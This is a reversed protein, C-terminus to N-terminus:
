FATIFVYFFCPFIIHEVGTYFTSIHSCEVIHVSNNKICSYRIFKKFQKTGKEGCNKLFIKLSIM